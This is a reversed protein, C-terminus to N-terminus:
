SNIFPFWNFSIYSVILSHNFSVGDGDGDGDGDGLTNHYVVTNFCIHIQIISPLSLSLINTEDFPVFYM